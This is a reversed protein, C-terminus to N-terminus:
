ATVQALTVEVKVSGANYDASGGTYQLVIDAGATSASPDVATGCDPNGTGAPRTTIPTGLLSATVGTGNFLITGDTLSLLRNGSNGSLGTSSIVRMALVAFQSTASTHPQVVVKGASALAAQGATIYRVIVAPATAASASLSTQLTAAAAGPDPITVTTAQGFSANTVTVLNAAAANATGVFALADTPPNTTSGLSGSQCIFGNNESTNTNNGSHVNPNSVSRVPGSSRTM